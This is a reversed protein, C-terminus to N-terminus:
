TALRSSTATYPRPKLESDAQQLARVVASGGSAPDLAQVASRLASHGGDFASDAKRQIDVWTMPREVSGPVPGGVVEITGGSVTSAVIVSQKTTLQDDPHLEIRPLWARWGPDDVAASTFASLGTRGALQQALCYSLSFKSDLPTRIKTKGAVKLALPAVRASITAVEVHRALLSDVGDLAPHTLACCPHLKPSLSWIEWDGSEPWLGFDGSVQELLDDIARPGRSTRALDASLLGAMAARGAQLPKALSGFSATLGSAQAGAFGLASDVQRSDYGRLVAVAVAAAITGIIGTSHWGRDTMADGVARGFRGGAEVGILYATLWGPGSDVDDNGAALLAPIIASSLHAKSPLHTDDFDLIHGAVGNWLCSELRGTPRTRGIALHAGPTCVLPAAGVIEPAWRPGALAVVLWDFLALRTREIVETPIPGAALAPIEWSATQQADKRVM